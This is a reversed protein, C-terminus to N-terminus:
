RTPQHQHLPPPLSHCCPLNKLLSTGLQVYRSTVFFDLSHLTIVLSFPLIRYRLLYLPFAIHQSRHSSHGQPLKGITKVLGLAIAGPRHLRAEPQLALQVQLIASYIDTMSMGGAKIVARKSSQAGVWAEDLKRLIPDREPRLELFIGVM